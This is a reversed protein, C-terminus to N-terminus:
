LSPLHSLATALSLALDDTQCTTAYPWCGVLDFEPVVDGSCNVCSLRAREHPKYWVAREDVVWPVGGGSASRYARSLAVGAARALANPELRAQAEAQSLLAAGAERVESGREVRM